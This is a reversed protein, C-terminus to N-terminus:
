QRRRFKGKLKVGTARSALEEALDVLVERDEEAIRGLLGRMQAFIAEVDKAKGRGRPPRAAAGPSRDAHLLGSEGGTCFLMYLPVGLASAFRELTGLSPLTHGHEVRSTYCRLLGTAREVDGQSLGQVERLFRIREGVQAAKLPRIESKPKRATKKKTKM